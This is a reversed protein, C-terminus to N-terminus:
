LTELWANLRTLDAHHPNGSGAFFEGRGYFRTEAAEAARLDTDADGVMVADAPDVRAVRVIEQLLVEKAPPTGRWGAFFRTLNRQELILGLEEQPTGSCVWLPVKGHWRELVDLAGPVMPAALVEDLALETFRRGNAELEEPTCERGAFERYLWKIKEYRSVGGHLHHYLAMRDQAEPGFPEALRHFARTKADVSELLVGDCDFVILRLM